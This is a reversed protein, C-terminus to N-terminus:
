STTKWRMDGGLFYKLYPLLVAAACMLAILKKNYVKDTNILSVLIHAILFDFLGQRSGQLALLSILTIALAGLQCCKEQKNKQPLVFYLFYVIEAIPIFRKFFLFSQHGEEEIFLGARIAGTNRIAEMLGGQGHIFLFTSVASIALLWFLLKSLRARRLTYVPVISPKRRHSGCFVVSSVLIIVFALLHTVYSKDFHYITEVRGTGCMNWWYVLPTLVYSAVFFLVAYYKVDWRFKWLKGIFFIFFLLLLYATLFVTPM